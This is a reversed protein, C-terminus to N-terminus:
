QWGFELIIENGKCKLSNLSLLNFYFGKVECQTSTLVLSSSWSSVQDLQSWSFCHHTSHTWICQYSLISCSWCLFFQYIAWNYLNFCWFDELHCIESATVLSFPFFFFFCCASRILLGIINESKVFTKFLLSKFSFCCTVM